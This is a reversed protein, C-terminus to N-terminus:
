LLAAAVRDLVLLGASTPRLVAGDIEVLGDGVLEALEGALEARPDLGTMVTLEDLDIGDVLRLGCLLADGLRDRGTVAEWEPAAGELWAPTDANRSRVAITSSDRPDRMPLHSSASPGVGAFWASTWYARNHVSRAGERAHNSVEYREFGAAALVSATLVLADAAREDPVQVGLGEFPTGPEITLTYASVHDVGLDVAALLDAALDQGDIATMIDVSTTAGTERCWEVARRGADADHPRGLTRLVGDDFSQAGVSLRNFGLEAWQAAREPSATSPHVELTAEVGAWGARHGISRRLRGMESPRLYSPTGGGLYVTDLELRHTDALEALEADLRDLYADVAASRRELVHFSCFPCITPCFPVHVYLHRIPEDALPLVTPSMM